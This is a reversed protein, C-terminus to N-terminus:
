LFRAEPLATEATSLFQTQQQNNSKEEQQIRHIESPPDTQDDGATPM